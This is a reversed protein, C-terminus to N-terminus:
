CLSLIEIRGGAYQEYKKLVTEQNLFTSFKKEITYPINNDEYWKISVPGIFNSSYSWM